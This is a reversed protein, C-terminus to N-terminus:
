GTNGADETGWHVVVAVKEDEAAKMLFCSEAAEM